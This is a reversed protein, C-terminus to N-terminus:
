LSKMNVCETFRSWNPFRYACLAELWVCHNSLEYGVLWQAAQGGAKKVHIAQSAMKICFCPLSSPWVAERLWAGGGRNPM